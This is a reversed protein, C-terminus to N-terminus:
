SLREPCVVWSCRRAAQAMRGTVAVQQRGARWTLQHEATYDGYRQEVCFSQLHAPLDAVVREYSACTM